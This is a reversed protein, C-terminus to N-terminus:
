KKGVTKLQEIKYQLWEKESVGMNSAMIKEDATLQVKIPAPKTGGPSHGSSRVSGVGTYTPAASKTPAKRVNAIYKDIENFYQPSFYLDTRNNRALDDDLRNVFGKVKEALEPDYNSSDPKLYRHEDIWDKAIERAIEDDRTIEQNSTNRNLYYDETKVESRPQQKSNGTGKQWKEVEQLTNLAKTLALDADILGDVDGSEIARKKDLKAKELEAYANSGYHYTGAKIADNLMQKLKVNEQALYHKDALYAYKEKKLRWLRDRESEIEERSERPGERSDEVPETEEVQTGVEEQTVEEAKETSQGNKFNEVDEIARQLEAIGTNDVEQINDELNM